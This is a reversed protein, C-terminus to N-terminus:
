RIFSSSFFYKGYRQSEAAFRRLITAWPHLSASGQTVVGGVGLARSPRLFVFARNQRRVRM